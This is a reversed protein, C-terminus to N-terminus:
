LSGFGADCAEGVDQVSPRDIEAADICSVFQRFALSGQADSVVVDVAILGKTAIGSAVASGTEGDLVDLSPRSSVAINVGDGISTCISPDAPTGDSLAQPPDACFRLYRIFSEEIVRKQAEFEAVARTLRATDETAARTVRLNGVQVAAVSAVVVGVIVLAVLVEILTLGRTLKGAESM